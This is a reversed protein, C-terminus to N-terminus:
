RGAGENFADTASAPNDYFASVEIVRDGDPGHAIVAPVGRAGARAMTQAARGATQKAKARLDEDGVREADARDVGLEVLIDVIDDRNQASVGDVFRRRQLRRSLELEAVPGRDAVLAAADATFGSDLIEDQSSRVNAAYAESYQAGTLQHIRADAQIMHDAKGEALRPANDEHFLLRHLVNVKAESDVMAQLVEAAGYSWGCLTDYVITYDATDAEHAGSDDPTSSDPPIPSRNM